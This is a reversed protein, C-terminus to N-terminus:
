SRRRGGTLHRNSTTNGRKAALAEDGGATWAAHWQSVAQRSM